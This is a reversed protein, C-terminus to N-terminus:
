ASPDTDNVIGRENAKTLNILYFSLYNFSARMTRALILVSIYLRQKRNAGVNCCHDWLETPDNNYRLLSSLHTKWSLWPRNRWHLRRFM